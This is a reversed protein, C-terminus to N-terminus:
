INFIYMGDSTNKFLSYSDVKNVYYNVNNKTTSISSNNSINDLVTSSTETDIVNKNTTQISSNTTFTSNKTIKSNNITLYNPKTQILYNMCDKSLTQRAHERYSDFQSILDEICTPAKLKENKNYCISNNFNTNPLNQEVPSYNLSLQQRDKNLDPGNAKIGNKRKIKRHTNFHLTNNYIKYTIPYNDSPKKAFNNTEIPLIEPPTPINDIWKRTSYLKTAHIKNSTNKNLNDVYKGVGETKNNLENMAEYRLKSPKVVSDLPPLLLRKPQKLLGHYAILEFMNDIENYDRINVQKDNNYLVCNDTDTNLRSMSNSKTKNKNFVTFTNNVFKPNKKKKRLNLDYQVKNM